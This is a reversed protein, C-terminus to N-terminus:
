SNEEVDVVAKLVDGFLGPSEVLVIKYNKREKQNHIIRKRKNQVSYWM